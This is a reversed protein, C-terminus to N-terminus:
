AIEKETNKMLEDLTIKFHEVTGMILDMRYEYEDIDRLPVNYKLQNQVTDCFCRAMCVKIHEYTDPSLM